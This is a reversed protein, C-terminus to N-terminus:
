CKDLSTESNGFNPYQSCIEYLNKYQIKHHFILDKLTFTKATRAVLAEALQSM